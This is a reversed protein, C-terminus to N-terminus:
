DDCDGCKGGCFPKNLVPYMTGMMFGQDPSFLKEATKQFPVYAMAAAANDPLPAIGYQKEMIETLKM